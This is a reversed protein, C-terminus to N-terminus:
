AIRVEWDLASGDLPLHVKQNGMHHSIHFAIVPELDRKGDEGTCSITAGSLLEAIGLATLDVIDFRTELTFPIEKLQTVYKTLPLNRDEQSRSFIKWSDSLEYIVVRGYTGAMHCVHPVGTDESTDLFGRLGNKFYLIGYGGPDVFQAGRPNPTGTPDICGIVWEVESDAYFRMNDFFHGAMNGLGTSGCQVSIHRLGGIVGDKLLSKLKRHNASWRRIHNVALRSRRRQCVDIMRQADRLNTAMPKECFVRKLGAEAAAIVVQAHSPGNTAVTVLDLALDQDALLDEHDAYLRVQSAQQAFSQTKARDRDCVAVVQGGIRQCAIYHRQGMGGFGIIAIRPQHAM